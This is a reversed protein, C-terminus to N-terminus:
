IMAASVVFVRELRRVSGSTGGTRSMSRRRFTRCSCSLCGSFQNKKFMKCKGFTAFFINHCCGSFMWVLFNSCSQIFIHRLKLYITQNQLCIFCNQHFITQVLFNWNHIFYLMDM